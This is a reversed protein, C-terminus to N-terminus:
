RNVQIYLCTGFLLTLYLWFLSFGYHVITEFRKGRWLAADYVFLQAYLRIAWFLTLGGAIPLGLPTPRLLEHPWFLALAGMMALILAIFAAHVLFAQGNFASLRRSEARWQFREAIYFHAVALLLLLSGAIQLATQLVNM